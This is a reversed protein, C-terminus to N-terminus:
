NRLTLLNKKFFDQDLDFRDFLSELAPSIIIEKDVISHKGSYQIAYIIYVLLISFIGLYGAIDRYDNVNPNLRSLAVASGLLTLGTAFFQGRYKDVLFTVLQMLLVILLISYWYHVAGTSLTLLVTVWLVIDRRYARSYHGERKEVKDLRSIIGGLIVYLALIGHIVLMQNRDTDSASLPDISLLASFVLLPLLSPILTMWNGKRAIFTIALFIPTSILLVFIAGTNNKFGSTLIFILMLFNLFTNMSIEQYQLLKKEFWTSLRVLYNGEKDSLGFIGKIEFRGPVKYKHLILGTLSVMVLYGFYVIFPGISFGNINGGPANFKDTFIQIAGIVTFNGFMSIQNLRIREYDQVRPLIISLTFLSLGAYSSIIAWIGDLAIITLLFENLLTGMAALLLIDEVQNFRHSQFYVIIGGLVSLFIISMIFLSGATKISEDATGPLDRADKAIKISYGLITYETLSLSFAFNKLSGRSFIKLNSYLVFLGTITIFLGAPILVNFIYQSLVDYTTTEDFSLTVVFYGILVTLVRTYRDMESSIKRVVGSVLRNGYLSATSLHYFVGFSVFVLLHNYISSEIGRERLSAFEIFYAVTPWIFLLAYISRLYVPFLEVQGRMLLLAMPIISIIIGLSPLVVSDTSQIITISFTPGLLLVLIAPFVSKERMGAIAAFVAFPAFWIAGGGFLLFSWDTQPDIIRNYDSQAMVAATLFGFITTISLLTESENVYGIWNTFIILALVLLLLFPADNIATFNISIGLLFGSMVFFLGLGYQKDKIGVMKGEILLYGIFCVGLGTLGFTVGSQTNSFGTAISLFLMAVILGFIGISTLLPGEIFERLEARFDLEVVKTTPNVRTPLQVEEIIPKSYFSIPYLPPNPVIPPAIFLEPEEEVPDVEEEITELLEEEVVVEEIIEAEVTTKISESDEDPEKTTVEEISEIQSETTPDIHWILSDERVREEAIQTEEEPEDLAERDIDIRSSPLQAGSQSIDSIKDDISDLRYNIRDLHTDLKQIFRLPGISGTFPSNCSNCRSAIPVRKGCSYCIINHPNATDKPFKFGCKTCFKLYSPSDEGCRSCTIKGHSM